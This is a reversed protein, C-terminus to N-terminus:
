RAVAEEVYPVVDFNGEYLEQVREMEADNLWAAVRAPPRRETKDRM